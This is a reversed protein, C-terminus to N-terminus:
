VHSSMPHTLYIVRTFKNLPFGCLIQVEECFIVRNSIPWLRSAGFEVSSHIKLPICYIFIIKYIRVRQELLLLFIQLINLCYISRDFYIILFSILLYWMYDHRITGLWSSTLVDYFRVVWISHSLIQHLMTVHIVRLLDM